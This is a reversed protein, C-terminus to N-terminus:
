ECGVGDNDRDLHPGYGPAGRMVPAAGAARAATCNTYPARGTRENPRAKRPTVQGTNPNYNGPSSYNDSTTSNPSSRTHPAVYTGDARTYGRVQVQAVAASATLAIAIGILVFKM